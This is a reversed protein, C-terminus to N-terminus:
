REMTKKKKERANENPLPINLLLKPIPAIKPPQLSYRLVITVPPTDYILSWFEIYGNKKKVFVYSMLKFM